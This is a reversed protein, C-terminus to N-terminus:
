CLVVLVACSCMCVYMCVCVRVRVRVYVRACMYMCALACINARASVCAYWVCICLYCPYMWAYWVYWEHMCVNWVYMYLHIRSPRGSILYMSVYWACTCLVCVYIDRNCAYLCGVLCVFM